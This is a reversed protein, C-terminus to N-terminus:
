IYIYLLPALFLLHRRRQRPHPHFLPPTPKPQAHPPRSPTTQLSVSHRPHQKSVESDKDVNEEYYIIKKEKIKDLNEERYKKLRAKEKEKDVTEERYEKNTRGAIQKNITGNERIVEDERRNLEQKSSCPFDEYWEIYWNSWDNEIIHKYLSFILGRKCDRKHKGM